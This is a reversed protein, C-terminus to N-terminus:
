KKLEDKSLESLEQYYDGLVRLGKDFNELTLHENPGHLNETELGFGMLVVPLGLIDDFDAVIPISGGGRTYVTPVNYVKEYSRSAAKLAPHDFPTIFPLGQDFPTVTVKVGEPKHKEVHAKLKEVIEAPDQDPVLRCTIKAGAEAPLVTKIGEGSFGGFVGNVELTPRASTRELFSYGAEGHLAPVEMENKLEEEDFNLEKYAQREEDSLPRVNDYFGDVTITGEQDHFSALIEAIAHIPNQIGGGYVGSHLDSKAGYVDIQVGSLGRLAYCIAPQGPAYLATDSIVITDAALKEQHEKIFPVLNPSGVEEEGEIIFKVNLPLKGDLQMLAEVAKVHMFVQGKDDTSGRAFMKDDRIEPEFPASKWLHLPDVPQVDYHGYILITPQGEAHLWDAYVVPHGKTPEISINELGAEEFSGALWDAAKQMDPKHESLASISPISLFEKMQNLHTDRNKVFYENLQDITAM